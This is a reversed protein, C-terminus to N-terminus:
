HLKSAFPVSAAGVDCCSSGSSLRRALPGSASSLRLCPPEGQGDSTGWIGYLTKSDARVRASAGGPPGPSPARVTEKGLLPANCVHADAELDEVCRGGGYPRPTDAIQSVQSECGLLWDKLSVTAGSFRRHFPM